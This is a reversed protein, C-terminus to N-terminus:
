LEIDRRYLYGKVLRRQRTEELAKDDPIQADAAVFNIDHEITQTILDHDFRHLM